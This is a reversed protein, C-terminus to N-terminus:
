KAGSKVAKFLKGENENWAYMKGKISQGTNRTRIGFFPCLDAVPIVKFFKLDAKIATSTLRPFM